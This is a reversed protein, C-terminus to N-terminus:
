KKLAREMVDVLRETFARPDAIPKGEAVLASDFILRAFSESGDFDGTEIKADIAKILPHKANVELVKPLGKFDPNHLRMMQEMQPDMGDKDAVLRALSTQMNASSRVDAVSDDLATKIQGVFSDSLVAEAVEDEGEKPTGVNSVDIEGRTISQFAKGDFETVHSLWFDDIPDTLLLVDIGRAEFAELHPSRAALEANEASLYYIVEQGKAFTEVYEKLTVLKGTKTSHFLCIELIKERNDADEYLGEKIVRGLAGWLADYDERRKDIAKKFEGIVRKVLAKNIRQVTPNQQLMERSVNLDVDPTDIVGRMFRLWKPLLGEYNDTIFVRNVYLQLRSRREPDYLDFPAVSPVFLLNTFEVTGETKNHLTAFPADYASAVAFYFSKYDDESIDKSPKTWLAVASNLQEAEGTEPLWKIPQAIYDSYKKVLHAIRERELYDKADKRLHLIIDTGTEARTAEDITFGSQGDSTWRNAVEAGHRKSVVEIREAVMFASYFGVGFQGILQATVDDKDTKNGAARAQDMFARTGSSAITGLTAVMDDASLGVGNDSITLIRDKKQAHIIIEGDFADASAGGGIVEFKRKNIADSANSVLERLFIESQSYLSNIVINLIKGTDAEFNFTKEAMNM